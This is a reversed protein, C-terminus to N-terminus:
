WSALMVAVRGEAAARAVDAAPDPEVAIMGLGSGLPDEVGATVVVGEVVVGGDLLVLRCADGSQAGRPVPVEVVWWGSPVVEHADGVDASLVPAGLAISELATKGLEIPTFTGTPVVRAETNSQDVVTGPNIEEIAFPHSVTSDPRVEIWLAGAAIL